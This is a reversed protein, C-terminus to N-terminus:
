GHEARWAMFRGPLGPFGSILAVLLTAAYPLSQVVLVIVWLTMDLTDMKQRLSIAAATSLMAALLFLEEISAALARMLHSAGAMKPTRFFPKDTTLFGAIVARAITHSLSLGGLAAAFTQIMTANVRTRYLYIMKGIKFGFFALPLVSFVVLPPDVHLPDIIMALSWCLAALNFFLNAGDALWPLWGAIFHYRQGNRLRSKQRSLLYPAHRRLIQVAGYAWRFRQKKYDLFTDPM